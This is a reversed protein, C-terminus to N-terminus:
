LLIMQCLDLVSIVGEYSLSCFPKIFPGKNLSSNKFAHIRILYTLNIEKLKVM